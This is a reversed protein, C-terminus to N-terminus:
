PGELTLELLSWAHGLAQGDEVDRAIRVLESKGFALLVGSAGDYEVVRTDQPRQEPPCAAQESEAANLLRPYVSDIVPRAGESVAQLVSIPRLSTGLHQVFRLFIAISILTSIVAILVSMQPVRSNEIRGLVGSTFVYSFVLVGVLVKVQRNRFGMAIIRPTLQASALQVVLLLSSLVFVLFTLLSTSLSGLVARAGDPTFNLWQWGLQYDLWRITPLAIATALLVAVPWIWFSTRLFNRIRYRQLWTM